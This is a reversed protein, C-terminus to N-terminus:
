KKPEWNGGLRLRGGEDHHIQGTEEVSIEGYIGEELCAFCELGGM